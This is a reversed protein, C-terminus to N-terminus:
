DDILLQLINWLGIESRCAKAQLCSFFLHRSDETLAEFQLCLNSCPVGKIQLSARTPLCGRMMQWALVKVKGSVISELALEM